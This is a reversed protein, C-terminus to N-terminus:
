NISTEDEQEHKPVIEGYFAALAVATAFVIITVGLFLYNPGVYYWAYSAIIPITMRAISGVSSLWGLMVGQENENLIKTFVAMLLAAACAYGVCIFFIAVMFRPIPIYGNNWDIFIILGIVLLFTYVVLLVRDNFYHLAVQLSMLAMLSLVSMGAFLLSTKWVDWEIYPDTATYLPGITEFLTFSTTLAFQSWLCLIVGGLALSTENLASLARFSRMSTAKMHAAKRETAAPLKRKIEKFPIM